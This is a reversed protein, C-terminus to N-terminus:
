ETMDSVIRREQDLKDLSQCKNFLKLLFILQVYISNLYTLEMHFIIKLITVIFKYQLLKTEMYRVNLFFHNSQFISFINLESSPSTNQINRKSTLKWLNFFKIQINEFRRGNLINLIWYSWLWEIWVFNVLSM